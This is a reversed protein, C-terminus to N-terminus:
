LLHEPVREADSLVPTVTAPTAPLVLGSTPLDRVLPCGPLQLLQRQMSTGIIPCNPQRLRGCYRLPLVLVNHRLARM